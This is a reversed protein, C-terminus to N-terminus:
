TMVTSLPIRPCGRVTKQNGKAYCTARKRDCGVQLDFTDYQVPAFPFPTAATVTGDSSSSRVICTYGNNDGSTGTITGLRYTNEADSNDTLIRTTSSGGVDNCGIPDPVAGCGEDMYSNPCLPQYLHRPYAVDLIQLPSRVLITASASTLSTVEPKIGSFLWLCDPEPTFGYEPSWYARRLKIELAEDLKGNAIAALIPVEDWTLDTKSITIELETTELGRTSTVDGRTWVLDHDYTEGDKVVDRNANTYRDVTASIEVGDGWDWTIDLLDAAISNGTALLTDLNPACTKM